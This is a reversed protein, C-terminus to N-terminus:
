VPHGDRAAAAEAAALKAPVGQEMARAFADDRDGALYRKWMNELFVAAKWHALCEYWAIRSTDRGTRAAYLRALEARSPFGLEATVPSLPPHGPAPETDDTYMSLLYGLDALPDGITSLEWDLVASIRAPADEAVLLNGVRYDGHVVTAPVAPPLHALLWAGLEEVVPLDRTANHPWIKLFRGIQRELYGDPRGFTALGASEPDIAHIEALADVLEEGLRARDSPTDIAPPLATDIPVGPSLEMVYFPVGLLSEDDCVALVGPVRAGAAHLRSVIASERLMDHASPPLPPRPPRRLVVRTGGREVLYTLNSHGDGLPRYSVPGEGIGHADFFREVVEPVFLDTSGGAM